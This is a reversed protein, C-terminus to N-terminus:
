TINIESSTFRVSYVFDWLILNGLPCKVLYKNDSCIFGQYLIFGMGFYFGQFPNKNGGVRKEYRSADVVLGISGKKLLIRQRKIESLSNKMHSLFLSTEDLIVQM